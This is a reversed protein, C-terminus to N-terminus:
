AQTEECRLRLSVKLGGLEDSRAYHLEGGYQAVIDSVIVLGLGHGPRQEDARLGATGLRDLLEAPVGLGDDEITCQLASADDAVRIRVRHSAWKCANDLLNGFLELMDERDVAFGLAPVQLEIDLAKAVYLRQMAAALAEFQPRLEFRSAPPGGGALRARRLETEISTLMRQIQRRIADAAEPMGAANLEDAHQQLVALPTKLAHSLNGVAHRVRGVRQVHHRALRDVAALMPQVESPANAPLATTEGRELLRCAHAADQLPALGRLLLQRQLILLLALAIALGFVTRRHFRAISADVSAVDEAVSIAIDGDAAAFRKALVLLQQGAPGPLRQISEGSADPAAFALTEDWQSRSRLVTGGALRVEFYHGSLPLQYVTGAADDVAAEVDPADVIRVYLLDADHRLRAAVYDEVLHRSFDQLAFALVAVAGLLVLAMALSLRNLLSNM